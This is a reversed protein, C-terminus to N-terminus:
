ANATTAPEGFLGLVGRGIAHELREGAAFMDVLQVLSVAGAALGLGLAAQPFALAAFACATNTACMLTHGLVTARKAPDTERSFEVVDSATTVLGIIPAAKGLFTFVKGVGSLAPAATGGAKAMLGIAQSEGEIIEGAIRLKGMGTASGAAKLSFISAEKGITLRDVIEIKETVAEVRDVKETPEAVPRPPATRVVRDKAITSM